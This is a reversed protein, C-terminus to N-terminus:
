PYFQPLSIKGGKAIRRDLIKQAIKTCTKKPCKKRVKQANKSVNKACKPFMKQANKGLIQPPPIGGFIRLFIGIFHGVFACFIRLFHEFFACFIRLFPGFCTWFIRLFHRGFHAFFDGEWKCRIKYM